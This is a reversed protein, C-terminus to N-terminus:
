AIPVQPLLTPTTQSKRKASMTQCLLLTKDWDSDPIEIGYALCNKDM